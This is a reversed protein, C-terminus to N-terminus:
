PRGTVPERTDIGLMQKMEDTSLKIEGVPIDTHKSRLYKMPGIGSEKRLLSGLVAQRDNGIACLIGLGTISITGGM